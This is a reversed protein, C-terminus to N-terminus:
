VARGFHDSAVDSRDWREDDLRRETNLEVTKPATMEIRGEDIGGTSSSANDDSLRHFKGFESVNGLEFVEPQTHTSTFTRKVHSRTVGVTSKTHTVFGQLHLAKAFMRLLPKFSLACASLLYMGPEIMTWNILAVHNWTVDTLPGAEALTQAFVVTRIISAVIGVSGTLFILLLGIRRGVSIKLCWVTRLPLILVALDTAINPVSSSNAFVQVNFCRGNPINKDWNFRFPMCQFGVAVTFSIWTSLILVVLTKAALREYKNTLIHLYLLVVTLKPFAVAAPHLVEQIMIGKFHESIKAPDTSAIYAMHRGTSAKEVM